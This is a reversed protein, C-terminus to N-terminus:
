ELYGLSKLTEATGEDIVAAAGTEPLGLAERRRAADARAEVLVARMAALRDPEQAALNTREGPDATLDYLEETQSVLSVIYKFGDAATVAEREEGYLTASHVLAPAVGLGLIGTLAQVQLEASGHQVGCLTLITPLISTTTVYAPEIRGPPSSSQASKHLKVILPVNLLENYMTHGHEFGDHDWFEEGHDSTFVILTDDYAGIEKLHAMLKGIEDDVYRIEGNYLAEIWKREDSTRGEYGIRPADFSWLLYEMGPPPPGAPRYEAPPGYPIHPDFYHLWLFARRDKVNDFWATALRTLEIPRGKTLPEQDLFRKRAALGLAATNPMNLPFWVYEQFGQDLNAMQPKLVTNTGIASSFYGAESLYEAMTKFKDSVLDGMESVRHTYQTLGTMISAMSPGTWSAAAMANEFRVGDRALADINPTQTGTAGYCSLGGARLTDVVLLLVHKPPDFALDGNSARAGGRSELLRDYAALSAPAAVDTREPVFYTSAFVAVITAVFALATAAGSRKWYCLVTIVAVAAAISCFIIMATSEDLRFDWKGRRVGLLWVVSVLFACHFPLALAEGHVLARLWPRRSVRDALYLAGFLAMLAVGIIYGANIIFEGLDQLTIEDPIEIVSVLALGFLVTVWLLLTLAVRFAAASARLLGLFVAGGVALYAALAIAVSASLDAFLAARLGVFNPEDVAAVLVDLMGITLGFACGLTLFGVLTPRAHTLQTSGNEPM